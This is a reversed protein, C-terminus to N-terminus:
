HTFDEHWDFPFEGKFYSKTKDSANGREVFNRQEFSAKWVPSASLFFGLTLFLFFSFLLKM